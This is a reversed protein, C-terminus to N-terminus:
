DMTIIVKGTAQRSKLFDLAEATKELPFTASVHPKIKNTQYLKNLREFSKTVKKPTYKIYDGWYYGQIDINKVLLHNAPIRPVDGSAFGVLLIRGLSNMVRLSQNFADGGVPDYVVDVNGVLEKVRKKISENKYDIIHDAGNEKALACKESGGATAIVTAGMAKGLQVAALGVGGAAGHVMLTEGEQLRARDFLALESTGYAVPYAAAEPASAGKPAQWINSCHTVLEEAYGGANVFAVVDDGVYVGDADDSVEIVKGTAEMGPIFPLPPISQYTGKLVLLDAFNLAAAKVKIRVEGSALPRSPLDIMKLQDIGGHETIQLARM